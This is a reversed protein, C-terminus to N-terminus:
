YNKQLDSLYKGQLYDIKLEKADLFMEKSEIMRIWTKVGNAQAITNLGNMISKYKENNLNKTYFSDFRVIDIDLDRLYLFSTHISGLRDIAILVGEKRLSQLIANYRQIHSYYQSEYLLFLIRNKIEKNDSLLKKVKRVFIPNRISTPSINLAIVEDKSHKCKQINNELVMLDFDLMLGLKYLVKMYRKPHLLKGNKTQLKVFCENITTNEDSYVDQYLMTFEKSKLANKVYAEIEGPDREDDIDKINQKRLGFLDEIIYDLDRSLTTNNMVSTIKVEIDDIVFEESKLCMMEYLTKYDQKIGKLCIVFDAGNVHGIPFNNIGNSQLYECIWKGVEYLVKDASKVGYKSNIDNLNDIDILLFTYEDKSKLLKNLLKYLADRTFVKSVSDTIKDDYGKYILYFIFYISIVLVLILEINFFNIFHENTSIFIHIVLTLFLAFVPLTMRLALKFRHEREKIQPLQM